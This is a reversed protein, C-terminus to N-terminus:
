VAGCSRRDPPRYSGTLRDPVVANPRDPFAADPGLAFAPSSLEGAKTPTAFSAVRLGWVYCVVEDPDNM